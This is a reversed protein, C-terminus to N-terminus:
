KQVDAPTCHGGECRNNETCSYEYLETGPKMLVFTRTNKIPKTYYKPDEMTIEWNLHDYDPRTMRITTHLQDSLPHQATDLWSEGNFGTTQIVLTDGEWHGVSTGRWSPEIDAPLQRGDTPVVHFANDQEWLIALRDPHHVYEHPYPTGFSRVFGWPLCREGYDFTDPKNSRDMVAKGAATFSLEGSGIQKCGRSGGACAGDVNKTIDGVRPHDWVGTFDPKGNPLRSAQKTAQASAATRKLPLITVVTLCVLL